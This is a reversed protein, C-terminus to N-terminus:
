GSKKMSVLLTQLQCKKILYLFGKENSCTQVCKFKNLYNKSQKLM